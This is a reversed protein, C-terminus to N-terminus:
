ITGAIRLIDARQLQADTPLALLKKYLPNSLGRPNPWFSPLFVGHNRARARVETASDVLTVFFGPEEQSKILSPGLEGAYIEVNRRRSARDQEQRLALSPLFAVTTSSPRSIDKQADLTQEAEHFASVYDDERGLGDNLFAAKRKKAAMKGAVFPAESTFILDERLPRTSRVLSGDALVTSKRYSNFGSWDPVGAPPEFDFHFVCDEILRRGRLTELAAIPTAMGFFRILYLVDFDESLISPVDPQLNEDVRYFGFPIGLSELIDPIVPCHFDPLLVRKPAQSALLLRLSSRGSDTLTRYGDSFPWPPEGGLPRIAM